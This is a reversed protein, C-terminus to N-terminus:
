VEGMLLTELYSLRESLNKIKAHQAAVLHRLADTKKYFVQEPPVVITKYRCTEDDYEDTMLEVGIHKGDKWVSRVDSSSSVEYPVLEAQDNIIWAKKFPKM